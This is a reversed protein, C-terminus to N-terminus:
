ESFSYSWSLSKLWKISSKRKLYIYITYLITVKVSNLTKLSSKLNWLHLLRSEQDGIHTNSTVTQWPQIM